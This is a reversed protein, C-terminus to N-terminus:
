ADADTANAENGRAGGARDASEEGEGRNADLEIVIAHVDSVDDLVRMTVGALDGSQALASGCAMVLAAGFITSLSRPM